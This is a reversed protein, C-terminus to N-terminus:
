DRRKPDKLPITMLGYEKMKKYLVIQSIGLAKAADARNYRNTLLARVILNRENLELDMGPQEPIM